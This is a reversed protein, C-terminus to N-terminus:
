VYEKIKNIELIEKQEDWGDWVEYDDGFVEKLNLGLKEEWFELLDETKKFIRTQLSMEDKHLGERLIKISKPFTNQFAKSTKSYKGQKVFEYDKEYKKDLQYVVVVFGDEYDYDEIIAKTREYENDLFERFRDLNEPKFLLYISNEYETDKGEDKIYGNIFGNSKLSDKPFGLTPVIFISTINKKIEM